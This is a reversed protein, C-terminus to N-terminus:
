NGRLKNVSLSKQRADDLRLQSSDQGWMNEKVQRATRNNSTSWSNSLLDTQKFASAPIASTDIITLSNNGPVKKQPLTTTTNANKGFDNKSKGASYISNLTTKNITTVQDHTTIGTFSQGSYSLSDSEGKFIGNKFTSTVGRFSGVMAVTPADYPDVETITLSLQVKAYKGNDLVPKQYTVGISGSIVGRIFIENGLRIAVQPPDVVKSGTKYVNYRPLSCAQLYKILVDIYDEDEFDVVNDKLNSVGLNLDEMMDRHLDLSFNVTRPGSYSYSQVPASSALASTGQFTSSMSDTVSDPFTPLVCFKELHYLYIFNDLINM